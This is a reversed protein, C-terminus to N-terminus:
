PAAKRRRPMLGLRRRFEESPRVTLVITVSGNHRITEEVEVSKGTAALAMAHELRKAAKADGAEASRHLERLRKLVPDMASTDFIIPLSARARTM